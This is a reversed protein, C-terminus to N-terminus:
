VEKMDQENVYGLIGRAIGVENMAKCIRYRGNIPLAAWIRYIGTLEMARVTAGATNYVPAATLRITDGGKWARGSEPKVEETKKKTAM